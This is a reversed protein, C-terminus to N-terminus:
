GASCSKDGNRNKNKFSVSEITGSSWHRNIHNLAKGMHYCRWVDQNHRQVSIACKQRPRWLISSGANPIGLGIRGSSDDIHARDQPRTTLPRFILKELILGLIGILIAALILTAFFNLGFNGFFYYAVYGGLMYMEGHTFNVIGLIGFILTLGLAILAYNIGLMVGNLGGQALLSWEM